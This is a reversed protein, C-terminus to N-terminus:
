LLARHLMEFDTVFNQAFGPVTSERAAQLVQSDITLRPERNFLIVFPSMTLSPIVSVNHAFAITPIQRTRDTRKQM